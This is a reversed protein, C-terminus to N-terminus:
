VHSTCVKKKYSCVNRDGIGVVRPGEVGLDGRGGCPLSGREVGVVIEVVDDVLGEATMVAGLVCPSDNAPVEVSGPRGCVGM